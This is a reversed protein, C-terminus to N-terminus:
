ITDLNNLKQRATLYQSLAKAHQEVAGKACALCILFALPNSKDISYRGLTMCSLALVGQFIAHNRSQKKTNSHQHKYAAKKKEVMYPTIIASLDQSNDVTM